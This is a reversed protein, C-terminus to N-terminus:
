PYNGSKQREAALADLETAFSPESKSVQSAISLSTVAATAEATVAILGGIAEAAEAASGDSPMNLSESPPLQACGLAAIASVALLWRGQNM